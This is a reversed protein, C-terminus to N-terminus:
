VRAKRRPMLVSVGLTMLALTGPEPIPLLGLASANGAGFNDQWVTYDAADIVGNGNGDAALNTTSGFSDQWVTYDAADVIGNGNYDGALLSSATYVFALGSPRFVSEGISTSDGTAPDIEFLRYEGDFGLGLMTNDLPDFALDDFRFVSLQDTILDVAATAPNIEYLSSDSSGYLRGTNDFALSSLNLEFEGVETSEGTLPDIRYMAGGQTGPTAFFEGTTPHIALTSLIALADYPATSIVSQDTPDIQFISATSDFGIGWLGGVSDGALDEIRFGFTGLETEQGTAPNVEFVPGLNSAGTAYLQADTSCAVGASLLVGLALGSIKM